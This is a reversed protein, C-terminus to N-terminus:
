TPGSSGSTKAAKVPGSPPRVEMDLRPSLNVAEAICTLCYGSTTRNLSDTMHSTVSMHGDNSGGKDGLETMKLCLLYQFDSSTQIESM